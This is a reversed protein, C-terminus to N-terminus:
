LPFDENKNEISDNDVVTPKCENLRSVQSDSLKGFKSCHAIVQDVTSKGSEIASKMAPMDKNFQDDSYMPMEIKLLPITQKTRTAKNKQIFATYGAKPIDSLAKIRLGGVEQGAWRVTKDGFLQISKGIWSDTDDGWAGALIRLMGKSPKYPRNNCGSYFISVPQDTNNVIASEITIIIESEGIDIFNLQDSKAKMAQSVSAM